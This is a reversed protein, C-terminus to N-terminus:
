RRLYHRVGPILRRIGSILHYILLVLVVVTMALILLGTLAPVASSNGSRHLTWLIPALLTRSLSRLAPQSAIIRAPAPSVATYIRLLRRGWWRKSLYNDRYSRFTDVEPEMVSGYSATAIFCGGGGGGGRTTQNPQIVVTLPSAAQNGAGDTTKVTYFITDGSQFGGVDAGSDSWQEASPPLSSVATMNGQYFREIVIGGYDQYFPDAALASVDWTLDVQSGNISFSLDEVPLRPFPKMFGTTLISSPLDMEDLARLAFAVTAGQASCQSVDVPILEPRQAIRPRPIEMSSGFSGFDDGSLFVNEGCRLEYRDAWGPLTGDDGPALWTLFLTDIDSGVCGLKKGPPLLPHFPFLPPLNDTYHGRALTYASGEVTATWLLNGDRPDVVVCVPNLVELLGTGAESSIDVWNEGPAGRDSTASSWYVRRDSNWIVAFADQRLDQDEGFPLAVSRFDPSVFSPPAVGTDEEWIGNKILSIREPVMGYNVGAVARPFPGGPMPNFGVSRVQLGTYLGADWQFANDSQWLGPRTSTQNEYGALYSRLPKELYDHAIDVIDIALNEGQYNITAATVTNGDDTTIYIGHDTAWLVTASDYPDIEVDNVIGVGLTGGHIYKWQYTFSGAPNQQARFLGSGDGGLWLVGDDDHSFGGSLFGSERALQIQRPDSLNEFDSMLLRQWAGNRREYVGSTGFALVRGSDSPHLHLGKSLHYVTKGLSVAQIGENFPIGPLASPVGAGVRYVGAQDFAICLDGGSAVVTRIRTSVGDFDWRSWSGGGSAPMEYIGAPGPNSAIDFWNHNRMVAFTRNGPGTGFSIVPYPPLGTGHPTADWTGSSKKWIRGDEMGLLPNGDHDAGMTLCVGDNRLFEPAPNWGSGGDASKYVRCTSVSEDVYMGQVLFIDDTGKLHLIDRIPTGNLPITVPLMVQGSLRFLDGDVTGALLTSSSNIAIATVDPLSLDSWIGSAINLQYLNGSPPLDMQDQGFIFPDSSPVAIAYILSYGPNPVIELVRMGLTAPFEGWQYGSVDDNPYQYIGNGTAAFLTSSGASGNKLDHIVGGWPGVPTWAWGPVIMVAM